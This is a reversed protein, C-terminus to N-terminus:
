FAPGDPAIAVGGKTTMDFRIALDTPDLGDLDVGADAFAASIAGIIAEPLAGGIDTVASHNGTQEVAALIAAPSFVIGLDVGITAPAPTITM